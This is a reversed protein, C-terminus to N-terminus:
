LPSYVLEVTQKLAMIEAKFGVSTPGMKQLELGL